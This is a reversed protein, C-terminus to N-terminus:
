VEDDPHYVDFDDPDIEYDDKGIFRKFADFAQPVMTTKFGDMNVAGYRSSQEIFYVDEDGTAGFSIPGVVTDIFGLIASDARTNDTCINRSYATSSM